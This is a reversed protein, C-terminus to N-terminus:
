KEDLPICKAAVLKIGINIKQNLQQDFNYQLLYILSRKLILIVLINCICLRINATNSYM